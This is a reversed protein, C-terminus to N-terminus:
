LEEKRILSVNIKELLYVYWKAPDYFTTKRISPTLEKFHNLLTNKLSNKLGNNLDHALELNNQYKEPTATEMEDKLKWCKLNTIAFIVVIRSVSLFDWSSLLANLDSEIDVIHNTSSKGMTTKISEISLKDLLDAVTFQTIKAIEYNTEIINQNSAIIQNKAENRSGNLKHALILNEIFNSKMMEEKADWINLNSQALTAILSLFQADFVIEGNRTHMENAIAIISNEYDEMLDTSPNESLLESFQKLQLICLRDSLEGLSVICKRNISRV